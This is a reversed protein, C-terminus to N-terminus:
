GNINNMNIKTQHNSIPCSRGDAYVGKFYNKQWGPAGSKLFNTRSRDFKDYETHLLPNDSLPKIQVPVSEVYERPIPFFHCIPDEPMFIATGPEIIKWNMTFSYPAWDTEYVGTLAQANKM